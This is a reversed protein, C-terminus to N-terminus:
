ADDVSPYPRSIVCANVGGVGMSLKGVPAQPVDVTQELVLRQGLAKIAPHLAEADLGVPFLRGRTMGLYQATLEWGGGVGMGHGFTGKRASVPTTPPLFSRLNELEQFDGPTATAHLDWTALSAADVEARALAQAVAARPGAVSPTIIHDADSSTGVSVPQLGLPTWGRARGYELDGVIWVCAGGAVHTGKLDTLPRSPAGDAALVRACHFAGVSMPHPPPDTAGAVVLKAEGREIADLALKLSVSFTSCAAVPAFALGTIKALMSIQSSPTNHINWLVNASVVEWPPQPAGWKAQLTALNRQRDRLRKLKGTEVDGQLPAGEIVALEHLYTELAESRDAWYALWADEAEERDDPDELTAPDTVPLPGRQTEYRARAQCRGPQSWFRNWRRQARHLRIATEYHTPYAGLATGVYVHAGAGLERLATELGENQGLAQIFAGIAYLTTADMKDRLQKIRSSSFRQTIWGEYDGFDFTPTGVLFNDRGFGHFPRLSTAGRELLDVFADITPAGPAVIGWGFIAARTM